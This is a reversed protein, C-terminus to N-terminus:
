RPRQDVDDNGRLAFRECQEAGVVAPNAQELDPVSPVKRLKSRNCHNTYPAWMSISSDRIADLLLLIRRGSSKAEARAAPREPNVCLPVKTGM